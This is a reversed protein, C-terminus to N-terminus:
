CKKLNSKQDQFRSRLFFEFKLQGLVSPTQLHSFGHERMYDLVRESNNKAQFRFEPGIEKEVVRQRLTPKKEPMPVTDLMSANKIAEQVRQKESIYTNFRFDQEVFKPKVRVPSYYDNRKM